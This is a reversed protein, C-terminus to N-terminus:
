RKQLFQEFEDAEILREAATVRDASTLKRPGSEIENRLWERATANTVHMYEYGVTGCYIEKLRDLIAAVTAAESGLPGNVFAPAEGQGLSLAALDLAVEPDEARSALGLPDLDAAIHGRWRFQEVIRGLILATRSPDLRTIAAKAGVPDTPIEIGDFFARWSEDVADGVGLHEKYLAAIVERYLAINM